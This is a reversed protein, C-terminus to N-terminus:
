EHKVYFIFINHFRSLMGSEDYCVMMDLNGLSIKHSNCEHLLKLYWLWAHLFQDCVVDLNLESCMLWKVVSEAVLKVCLKIKFNQGIYDNNLFCSFQICIMTIWVVSLLVEFILSTLCVREALCRIVKNKAVSQFLWLWAHLFLNFYAHSMVLM